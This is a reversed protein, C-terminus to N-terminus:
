NMGSVVLMNAAIDTVLTTANGTVAVIISGAENLTLQQPALLAAVAGGVQAQQHIALQTNSGAIGYKYVEANLAWGGGNTAVTATDAISTGGVVASGVVASTCGIWIRIRKNNATAGFSGQTALQIGRQSQQAVNVGAVSAPIIAGDFASAPITFAFLVNDNNITGPQTGPWAVQHNLTGEEQITSGSGGFLAGTNNPLQFWQRDGIASDFAPM